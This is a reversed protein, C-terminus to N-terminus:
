EWFLLYVTGLLIGASIVSAIGRPGFPWIVKELNVPPLCYMLFGFVAPFIFIFWMTHPQGNNDMISHNFVFIAAAAICVLIIGLLSCLFSYEEIAHRCVGTSFTACGWWLAAALMAVVLMGWLSLNYQRVSAADGQTLFKDAARACAYCAFGLLVVMWAAARRSNRTSFLQLDNKKM